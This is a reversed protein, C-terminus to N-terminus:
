IEKENTPKAVDNVTHRRVAQRTRAVLENEAANLLDQSAKQVATNKLDSFGVKHILHRLAAHVTKTDQNESFDEKSSEFRAIMLRDDSVENTLRAREAMVHAHRTADCVALPSHGLMRIMKYPKFIAGLTQVMTQTRTLIVARNGQMEEALRLALANMMRETDTDPHGSRIIINEKLDAAEIIACFGGAGPRTTMVVDIRVLLTGAPVSLDWGAPYSLLM